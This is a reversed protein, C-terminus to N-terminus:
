HSVWLILISVLFLFQNKETLHLAWIQSYSTNADCDQFTNGKLYTDDIYDVNEFGKSHLTSYAPKM